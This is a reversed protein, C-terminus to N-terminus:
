QCRNSIYSSLTCVTLSIRWVSWERGWALENTTCSRAEFLITSTEPSASNLAVLRPARVALTAFPDRNENYLQLDFKYTDGTPFQLEIASLTAYTAFDFTM